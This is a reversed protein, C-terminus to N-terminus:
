VILFTRAPLLTECGSHILDCLKFYLKTWEDEYKEPDSFDYCLNNNLCLQGLWGDPKYGAEMRLPLVPKQLSIAYQAETCIM